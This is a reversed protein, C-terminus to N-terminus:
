KEENAEEFLLIGKVQELLVPADRTVIRWIDDMRLGDYNHAAIDRVGAIFRWEIEHHEQKLEESLSKVSGGIKILSMSFARKTREDSLFRELDYGDALEM